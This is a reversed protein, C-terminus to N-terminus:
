RYEATFSRAGTRTPAYPPFLPSLRFRATGDGAQGAHAAAAAPPSPRRRKRASKGYRVESKRKEPM